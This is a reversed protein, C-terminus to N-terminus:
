PIDASHFDFLNSRQAQIIGRQNFGAARDHPPDDIIRMALPQACQNARPLAPRNSIAAIPGISLGCQAPGAPRTRPVSRDNANVVIGRRLTLLPPPFRVM